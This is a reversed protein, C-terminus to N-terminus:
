RLVVALPLLESLLLNLQLNGSFFPCTDGFQGEQVLVAMERVLNFCFAAGFVPHVTLGRVAPKSMLNPSKSLMDQILVKPRVQSFSAM